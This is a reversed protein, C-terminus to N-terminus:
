PVGRPGPRIDRTVAQSRVVDPGRVAGVLHELLDELGEAARAAGGEPERGRVGHVRQQGGARVGRVDGSGAGGVVPQTGFRGGALDALELRVDHEQAGRVVGGAGAEAQVDDLSHVLGAFRALGDHDDVLRVVLKGMVARGAGQRQQGAPLPEDDRPGHALGEGQGAGADAVHRCGRLDGVGKAQDAQRVVEGGDGLRRGQGGQLVPDRQHGVDLVDFACRSLITDSSSRM